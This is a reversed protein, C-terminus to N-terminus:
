IPEVHFVRFGRAEYNTLAHPHDRTCTHLWVRLDGRGRAARIASTLLAGGLGRGIFAPLLGFYAIEVSHGDPEFHLEFYGARVDNVFLLWMELDPHSVHARWQADTWPLRDIWRYPAGVDRYISRFLDADRSHERHVVAGAPLEREASPPVGAPLELYSRTEDM